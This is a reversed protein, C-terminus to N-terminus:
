LNNHEIIGTNYGKSLGYLCLINQDPEVSGEIDESLSLQIGKTKKSLLNRAYM